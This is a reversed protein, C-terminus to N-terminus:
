HWGPRPRLKIGQERLKATIATNSVGFRSSLWAISKGAIYFEAVERAQEETLGQRRLTVGQERLITAVRTKSIGYQTGIQQTTESAQYRAVIDATDEPRLFRKSRIKPKDQYLQPPRPVSARIRERLDSWKRSLHAFNSNRGIAEVM